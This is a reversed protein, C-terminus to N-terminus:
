ESEKAHKPQYGEDVNNKQKPEMTQAAIYTTTVFGLLLGTTFAFFTKM